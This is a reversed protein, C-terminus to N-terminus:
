QADVPIDLTVAQLRDLVQHVNAKGEVAMDIRMETHRPWGVRCPLYHFLFTWGLRIVIKKVSSSRADGILHRPLVDWGVRLTVEQPKQDRVSFEFGPLLIDQLDDALLRIIKIRLKKGLNEVLPPRAIPM